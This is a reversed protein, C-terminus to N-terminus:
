AARPGRLVDARMAHDFAHDAGDRGAAFMAAVEPTAVAERKHANYRAGVTEAVFAEFDAYRYVQGYTLTRREAFRAAARGIAAQAARRVATEDHFPRMLRAFASDIEPELVLLIGTGPRLVRHAEALAADMVAGPVHHLSSGFVVLDLSGTEAPLAQAVGQMFTVGPEPAAANDAAQGPEPEVALVSAGRRALARALEGRGCGVDAVRLGAPVVLRTVIDIDEAKGWDEM